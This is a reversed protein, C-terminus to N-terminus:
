AKGKQQIVLFRGYAREWEESPCPTYRKLEVSAASVRRMDSLTDVGGSTRVQVLTNGLATGEVPGCVVPLGTADAAYQMLWANRSGGGIVHLREIAFPSMEKLWGLVQRYRLALSRYICRIYDAPCQPVAQGTRRCYDAIAQTMSAPSAFDPADPDILGDYDSAECLASLAAVDKCVTDPFEERCREFLWLGCINKLFRTTGDLGGENTFNLRFSNENIVPHRTEVGLLSWTGCSLYAFHDGEAPVAAVASATDHGAVAIVPVAPLGTYQQVQSTLTGVVEGPRVMRGFRERSLGAAALLEPELEGTNPNLMQSTSAVTYETVANGTLLYSLADPMFLIKDAAALAPCGNRRLTDLQFLSNFNMFQIGTLEYVRGAPVSEFFKEMAGETHTDRYCYPLGSLQGDATFFAFDCGWTDIGVSAIEVKEAAVKRLGQLIEYYLAPLDWFLHGNMPIVPNRFRAVERMEVKTGDFASLVVRGSTAGLDVAVYNTNKM